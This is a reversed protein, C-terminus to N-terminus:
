CSGAGARTSASASGLVMVAVDSTELRRLDDPRPVSMAVDWIRTLSPRDGGLVAATCPIIFVMSRAFSSPRVSGRGGQLSGRCEDPLRVARFRHFSGAPGRAAHGSPGSRLHLGSRYCNRRLTQSGAACCSGPVPVPSCSPRPCASSRPASSRWRVSASTAALRLLSLLGDLGFPPAHRPDHRDNGDQKELALSLVRVELRRTVVATGQWNSSCQCFAMISRGQPSGAMMRPVQGLVRFREHVTGLGNRSEFLNKSKRKKRIM